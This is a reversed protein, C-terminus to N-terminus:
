LINREKEAILALLKEFLFPNVEWDHGADHELNRLVQSKSPRYANHLASAPFRSLVLSIVASPRFRNVPIHLFRPCPATERM